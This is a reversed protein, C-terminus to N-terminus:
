SVAGGSLESPRAECDRPRRTAREIMRVYAQALEQHVGRAQESTAKKAASREARERARIHEIWEPDGGAPQVPEDPGIDRFVVVPGCDKDINV